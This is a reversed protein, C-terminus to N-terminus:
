GCRPLLHPEVRGCRADNEAAPLHATLLHVAALGTCQCEADSAHVLPCLRWPQSAAALWHPAALQWEHGFAQRQVDGVCWQQHVAICRAGFVRLNSSSM